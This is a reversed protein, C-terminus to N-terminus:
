GVEHDELQDSEAYPSFPDAGTIRHFVGPVERRRTVGLKQKLAEVHARATRASIGLNEGIKEDTMGEALLSMVQCQRRSLRIM